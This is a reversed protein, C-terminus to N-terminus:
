ERNPLVYLESLALCQEASSRGDPAQIRIYRYSAGLNIIPSIYVLNDKLTTKNNEGLDIKTWEGAPDNTAWLEYVVPAHKKDSRSAM